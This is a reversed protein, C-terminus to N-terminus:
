IYFWDRSGGTRHFTALAATISASPSGQPLTKGNVYILGSDAREVGAIARCIDERGSCLVGAFSLIEGKHLEFSVDQCGGKKSLHEVKLVVDESPTIQKGQRYYAGQLERGVMSRHIDSVNTESTELEAVNKGDKFVYIRDTIELVEELHHSVFIISARDKLSRLKSFLLDVEGGDLVTTPEDLIVIPEHRTREEMALVRALEVM